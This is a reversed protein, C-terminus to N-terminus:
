SPAPSTFALRLRVPTGDAALGLSAPFWGDGWTTMAFLVSAGDVTITGAELESGRVERMVQWHHSRPRFDVMLRRGPAAAQWAMLEQAKAVAAQQTLGRWGHIGEEGPEGLLPAEFVEAAEQQAAGWFAVDFLGDIPTEHQWAGLAAADAFVVRAWDVRIHGLEVTEVVPHESLSLQLSAWRGGDDGTAAVAQVVLPRDRPVDGLVVVPVGHMLFGGERRAVARRVRERHPVRAAFARLRANWGHDACHEAFTAALPATQSAPIDYLATGPQRDFTRAAQAADPGVVEFDLADRIDTALAPDDIGLDAPDLTSPSGNGRWLGLYGGDMLVLEGSPCTIQGLEFIEGM